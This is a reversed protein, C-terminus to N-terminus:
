ILMWLMDSSTDRQTLKDPYAPWGTLVTWQQLLLLSLALPLKVTEKQLLEVSVSVDLPLLSNIDTSSSNGM